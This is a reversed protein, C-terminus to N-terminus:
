GTGVAEAITSIGEREMAPLIDAIIRRASETGSFALRAPAFVGSDSEIALVHNSADKLYADKYATGGRVLAGSMSFDGGNDFDGKGQYVPTVSVFSQWNSPEVANAGGAVVLM